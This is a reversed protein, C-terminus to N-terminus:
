LIDEGEFKLTELGVDFLIEGFYFKTNKDTKITKAYVNKESLKDDFYNIIGLYHSITQKTGEIYNKQECQLQFGDREEKNEMYKIKSFDTKYDTAKILKEYVSRSIENVSCSIENEAYKWPINKFDTTATYYESFKSELFFLANSEESFLVVDMNFDDNFVKNKWEFFSKTFTNDKGDISLTLPRKDAAYFFLLACLASSHVTLLEKANGKVGSGNCVQELKEKFLEPYEIDFVNTLTKQIDDLNKVDKNDIGDVKFSYSNKSYKKYRKNWTRQLQADGIAERNFISYIQKKKNDTMEAIEKSFDMVRDKFAAKM